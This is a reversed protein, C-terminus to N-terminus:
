GSGGLGQNDMATVATVVAATTALLLEGTDAWIIFAFFGDRAEAVTPLAPGLGPTPAATLLVGSAAPADLATALGVSAAAGADTTAEEAIM